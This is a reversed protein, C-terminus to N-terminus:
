LPNCSEKVMVNNVQLMILAVCLAMVADDQLPDRFSFIGGLILTWGVGVVVQAVEKM